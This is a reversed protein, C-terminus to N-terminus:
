GGAEVKVVRAGPQSELIELMRREEGSPMEVDLTLQLWREDLRHEYEEISAKIGAGDLTRAVSGTESVHGELVLTVRRRKRFGQRDEFRRLGWLAALGIATAIVSELYMGAGAALGIASVLWLGAATTLGQVSIGTRLIAGAGLFGIGVAVSAAIRAADVSIRDGAAYRQFYMFHTSVVMFTASALAVILHTRLGAPRGHYDREYGIIGGLLAGVLMRIALEWHPTM